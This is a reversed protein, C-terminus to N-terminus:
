RLVPTIHHFKGKGTIIRGTFNHVKQLKSISKKSTKSWVPFCYNLKGFVLVNIIRELTRADSLHRIRNIQCLSDICSSVTQSVLEDYRLASDM